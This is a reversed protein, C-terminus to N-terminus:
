AKKLWAVVSGQKANKLTVVKGGKIKQEKGIVQGNGADFWKVKFSGAVNTLDVQVDSGNSYVIYGNGANALTYQEKSPGDVPKMASAAAVLGADGMAPINALSGGAMFVAWGMQEYSDGSYMVAKSVIKLYCVCAANIKSFEERGLRSNIGYM